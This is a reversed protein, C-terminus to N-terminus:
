AVSELYENDYIENPDIDKLTKVHWKNYQFYIMRERSHISFLDKSLVNNSYPNIYEWIECSSDIRISRGIYQEKEGASNFSRALFVDTCGKVDIGQGMMKCNIMFQIEGNEFMEIAREMDSENELHFSKFGESLLHRNFAECERSTKFYVLTQGMEHAHNEFVSKAIGVKDNGNPDLISNIKPLSIFKRKIAEEKSISYIFREFKLMLGDGRNPTATLGFLPKEQIHELLRQVSAMAEHHAEDIFTLDWGQELVDDSIDSFASLCILEVDDCGAFTEIAQELLRHANAIMIVRVKREPDAKLKENIGLVDRVENSTALLRAILTKGSGTPSVFLLRRFGVDLYDRATLITNVQYYRPEHEPQSSLDLPEPNDSTHSVIYNMLQDNTLM